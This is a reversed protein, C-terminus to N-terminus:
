LATTHLVRGALDAKAFKSRRREIIAIDGVDRAKRM